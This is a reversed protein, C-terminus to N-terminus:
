PPAEKKKNEWDTESHQNQFHEITFLNLRQSPHYNM